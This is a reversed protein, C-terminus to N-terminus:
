GTLERSWVGVRQMGVETSTIRKMTSEINCHRAGVVGLSDQIVHERDRTFTYPALVVYPAFIMRRYGPDVFKEFPNGARIIEM